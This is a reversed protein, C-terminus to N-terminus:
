TLQRELRRVGEVAVLLWAVYLVDVMWVERGIM